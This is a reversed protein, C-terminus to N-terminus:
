LQHRHNIIAMLVFCISLLVYQSRLIYQVFIARQEFIFYKRGRSLNQIHARIPDFGIITFVFSVRYLMISIVAM